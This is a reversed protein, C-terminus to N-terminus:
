SYDFLGESRIVYSVQGRSSFPSFVRAMYKNDTKSLHIKLHTFMGISRELNEKESDDSSRVINTVVVPIKKKIAVFALAHMYKMFSVHKKLSKSESTYEFSFLDTVNDVVVLTIDEVKTIKDLSSMQESTNTIRGVTVRELLSSSKKKAALFELMREPRFSGTTDHYFIRGDEILSNVCIQMALQTKGTGSSGFIDTIIGKRLGGDLKEDLKQIGTKIM